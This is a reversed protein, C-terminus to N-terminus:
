QSSASSCEIPEGRMSNLKSPLRKNWSDFYSASQQLAYRLEVSVTRRAGPMHREVWEAFSKVRITLRCASYVCPGVYKDGYEVAALSFLASRAQGQVTEESFALQM